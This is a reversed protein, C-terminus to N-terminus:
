PEPKLDGTTWEDWTKTSWGSGGVVTHIMWPEAGLLLSLRRNRILSPIDKMSALLSCEATFLLRHSGAYRACTLSLMCFNVTDSRRSTHAHRGLGVKMHLTQEHLVTLGHWVKPAAEPDSVSVSDESVQLMTNVNESLVQM